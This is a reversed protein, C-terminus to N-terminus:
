DYLSAEKVPYLYAYTDKKLQDATMGYCYCADLAEALDDPNVDPLLKKYSEKVKDFIETKM